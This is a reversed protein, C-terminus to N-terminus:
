AKLGSDCAYSTSEAAKQLYDQRSHDVFPGQVGYENTIMLGIGDSNSNM